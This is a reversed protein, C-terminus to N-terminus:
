DLGLELRKNKIEDDITKSYDNIAEREDENYNIIRRFANEIYRSTLYSGPVEPIGEAYQWQQKIIRYESAKWPLQGMAKLNATPYRAAAGLISELNKGYEIQSDKSVWWKMFQWSDDKKKSQKMLICGTVASAVTRDIKGDSKMVGPVLGFGWLGKIEPASVSLTNYLSYDAILLPMEGSRIRTAPDYELPLSYNTFLRTWQKFTEVAEKSYLGTGKGDQTYLQGGNQYLLMGYGPLGLPFGFQLNNRQLEGIVKYLDTWTQPLKLNLKTLVDKRYFMMPFTQSEPLAYVNKDWTMPLLASEMFDSKIENFGQYDEINEVANRLAFNMIDASTNMLSVDPGTGAVTAMLLQGSVLKLNVNIGSKPVFYNSILGKIVQAQDRGTTVWVDINEDSRYGSLLSYDNAFSACFSQVGFVISEIFSDAAKPVENQKGLIALYDIEVPQCSQTLIWTALASINDRFEKMMKPIKRKDDLMRELMDTLNDITINADGRKGSFKILDDSLLKLSRYNNDLATIVDPLAIDIKYDRNLDPDSGAYMILQRYADNLDTVIKQANKILNSSGGLSCELRLIHKQGANFYIYYDQKGDGIINVDWQRSYPFSINKAEKFPLEGNILLKRNLTMGSIFNQRYKIAIRYLGDKPVEIQWEIWQGNKGWNNGGITNLCIRAADNPETVSTTRDTIQILNPDSKRLPDEGQIKFLYDSIKSKDEYHKIYDKYDPAQKYQCLTIGGIIVPERVSQLELTHNGKTFYFILPEDNYGTSDKVYEAVWSPTEEAIPLLENGRSDQKFRRGNKQANQANDSWIRYLSINGAEAYPLEGDIHIAREITGGKSEKTCYEFKLNYFGEEKIDVNWKVKGEDKSLVGNRQQGLNVLVLEGGTQSKIDVSIEIDPRKANVYGALYEDYPIGESYKLITSDYQETGAATNVESAFVTVSLCIPLILLSCLVRVSFSYRM